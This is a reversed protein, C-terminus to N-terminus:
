MQYHIESFRKLLALLNDVLLDANLLFIIHLIALNYHDVIDITALFQIEDTLHNVPEILEAEAEHYQITLIYDM